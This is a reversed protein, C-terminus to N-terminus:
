FTLYFIISTKRTLTPNNKEILNLQDVYFGDKRREFSKTEKKLEKDQKQLSSLELLFFLISFKLSVIMEKKDNLKEIEDCIEWLNKGDGYKEYILNEKEEEVEAKIYDM